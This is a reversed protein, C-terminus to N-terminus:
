ARAALRVFPSRTVASNPPTIASRVLSQGDLRFAFRFATADYDFWLHMSTDIKPGNRKQIVAYAGALDAFYIDGADGVTQCADTLIVPRGFLMGGPASKAGENVPTWVPQQGITMLPIQPFADPNVLWVATSPSTCRAYMKACNGAVITDATQSTEKAQEVIAGSNIFGQPRGAGSGNVIADNVMWRAAKGLERVLWAALAPADELLENTVPVLGALKRLRLERQELAPKTQSLEALEGEWAMRVGSTGWPQAAEVSVPFAMSNGTVPIPSCYALLSDGELSISFVDQAYETPVLFGGDAGTAENGYSTPAAASMGHLRPDVQPTYGKGHGARVVAHVFASFTSFGPGDYEGGSRGATPGTVIEHELRRENEIIANLERVEALLTEHQSHEAATMEGDGASLARARALLTQKKALASQLKTNL